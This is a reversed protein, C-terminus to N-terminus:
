ATPANGLCNDRYLLPATLGLSDVAAPRRSRRTRPPERALADDNHGSKPGAGTWTLADQPRYHELCAIKPDRYHRFSVGDWPLNTFESRREEPFFLERMRALKDAPYRMTLRSM